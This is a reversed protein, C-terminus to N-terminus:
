LAGVGVDGDLLHLGVDLALELVSAPEELVVVKGAPLVVGLEEVLPGEADECAAAEPGGQDEGGGGLVVRGGEERWSALDLEVVERDELGEEVDGVM